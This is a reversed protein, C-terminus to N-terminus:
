NHFIFLLDDNLKSHKTSRKVSNERFKDFSNSHAKPASYRSDQPQSPDLVIKIPTTEIKQSIRSWGRLTM